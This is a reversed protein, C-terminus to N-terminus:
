VSASSPGEKIYSAPESSSGYVAQEQRWFRVMSADFIIDADIIEGTFPNARSPGMAYGLESTIWRFTNFNVDEPDFDETEQQRVEIADRFGIKEFAKNWELIGERVAAARYKTPCRRGRDLLRDEEQSRVAQRSAQLRLARGTGLALPQRSRLFATDQSEPALIRSPPLSIAPRSRGGPGRSIAATPCSACAALPRAITNGRTSSATAATRVAVGAAPM